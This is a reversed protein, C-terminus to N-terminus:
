CTQCKIKMLSSMQSNTSMNENSKICFSGVMLIWAFSYHILFEIDENNHLQSDGGCKKKGEEKTSSKHSSQITEVAGRDM